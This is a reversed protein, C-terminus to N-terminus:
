KGFKGCAARNCGLILFKRELHKALKEIAALGMLVANQEGDVAIHNDDKVDPVTGQPMESLRM